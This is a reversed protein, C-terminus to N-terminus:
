IWQECELWEVGKETWEVGVRGMTRRCSQKM